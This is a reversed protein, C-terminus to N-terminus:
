PKRWVRLVFDIETSLEPLSLLREAAAPSTKYCYPTMNFLDRIQEGRLTITERVRTEEAFTLNYAPLTERNLYPTEYLAQKLGLLHHAGPQVDILRGGDRLVRRFEAAAPPAFLHTLTDVSGDAVPISHLGAVFYLSRKDAKAAMRIMDKAIDFGYVTRGDSSFASTYYGEGCCADLVVSGQVRAAVAERLPAYFGAALFARRARCMQPADGPYKSRRGGVPLLNIYGEKAFDFSHGQPCVATCGRRELPKRCLPCILARM